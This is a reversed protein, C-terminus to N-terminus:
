IRRNEEINKEDQYLVRTTIYSGRKLAGRPENKKLFRDCGKKMCTTTKKEWGNNEEMIILISFLLHEDDTCRM